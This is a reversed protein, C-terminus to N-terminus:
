RRILEIIIEASNIRIKNFSIRADGKLYITQGERKVNAAQHKLKDFSKEDIEIKTKSKFVEGSFYKTEFTNRDQDTKVSDANITTVAWIIEVGGTSYTVGASGESHGAKISFNLRENSYATMMIFVSLILYGIISTRKKSM